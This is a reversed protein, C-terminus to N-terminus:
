RPACVIGNFVVPLHPSDLQGGQVCCCHKVRETAARDYARCYLALTIQQLQQHPQLDQEPDIKHLKALALSGKFRDAKTAAPITVQLALQIPVRCWGLAHAHLVLPMCTLSTPMPNRCCPDNAQNIMSPYRQAPQDPLPIQQFQVACAPAAHTALQTMHYDTQDRNDSSQRALRRHQKSEDAAWARCWCCSSYSAEPRM